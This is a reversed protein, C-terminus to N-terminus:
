TGSPRGSGAETAGDSPVSTPEAVASDNTSAEQERAEKLRREQNLVGAHSAATVEEPYVIVVNGTEDDYVEYTIKERYSYTM